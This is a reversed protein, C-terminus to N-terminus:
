YLLVDGVSGVPNGAITHSASQAAHEVFLGADLVRMLLGLAVVLVVLVTGVVVYEVMAQGLRNGM